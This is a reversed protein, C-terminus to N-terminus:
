SFLCELSSTKSFLLDYGKRRTITLVTASRAVSVDSDECTFYWLHACLRLSLPYLSGHHHVHATCRPFAVRLLFRERKKKWHKSCGCGKPPRRRIGAEEETRKIYTCIHMYTFSLTLCARSLETNCSPDTVVCDPEYVPSWTTVQFTTDLFTVIELLTKMTAQARTSYATIVSSLNVKAFESLLRVNDPVWSLLHM